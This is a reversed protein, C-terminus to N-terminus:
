VSLVAPLSSFFRSRAMVEVGADRAAAMLDADVHSAFGVVRATSGRIADLAGPRAVDVVLVQADTTALDAVAGVFTAEPCAASIRSRDMLDPM